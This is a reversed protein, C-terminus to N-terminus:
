DWAILVDLCDHAGDLRQVDGQTGFRHSVRHHLRQEVV